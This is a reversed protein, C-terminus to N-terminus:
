LAAREEEAHRGAVDIAMVLALLVVAALEVALVQKADGSWDPEKWGFISAQRSLVLAGVSGIEVLIGALWALPRRLFVILGAVVLSVAVQVPFGTKVVWVGPVSGSPIDKYTSNWIKLHLLGGALVALAGLLRLATRATDKNM